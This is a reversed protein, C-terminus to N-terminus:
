YLRTSLGPRGDVTFTIQTLGPFLLTNTGSFCSDDASQMMSSVCITLAACVQLTQAIVGHVRVIVSTVNILHSSKKGANAHM